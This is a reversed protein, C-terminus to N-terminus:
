TREERFCWWKYYDIGQVVVDLTRDGRIEDIVSGQLTRSLWQM